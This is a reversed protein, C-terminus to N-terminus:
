NPNSIRIMNDKRWHPSNISLFKLAKNESTNRMRHKTNIPIAISDEAKIKHWTGDIEIEADDEIIFYIEKMVSHYHIDAVEGPSFICMLVEVNKLGSNKVDLIKYIVGRCGDEIIKNDKWNIIAM